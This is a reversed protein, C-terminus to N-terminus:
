IRQSKNKNGLLHSFIHLERLNALSLGVAIGREWFVESWQAYAGFAYYLLRRSDHAEPAHAVVPCLYQLHLVYRLHPYLPRVLGM